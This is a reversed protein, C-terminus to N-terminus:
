AGKKNAKQPNDILYAADTFNTKTQYVAAAGECQKLSGFSTSRAIRETKEMVVTKYRTAVEYIYPSSTFFDLDLVEFQLSPRQPTQDRWIFM